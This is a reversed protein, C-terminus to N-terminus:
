IYVVDETDMRGNILCTAATDQSRYAISCHVYTHIHRKLNTNKNEQRQCQRGEKRSYSSAEGQRQRKGQTHPKGPPESPLSDAQLAPSGTRDRPQFSRRSILIAVSELIRAQLIGHVSSGSPQLGLPQLGNFVASHSESKMCTHAPLEM